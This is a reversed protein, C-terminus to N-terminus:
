VVFEKEVKSVLKAEAKYIKYSMLAFCGFIVGMVICAIDGFGNFGDEIFCDIGVIIFIMASIINCIFCTKFESIRTREM